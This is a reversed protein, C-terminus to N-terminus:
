RSAPAALPIHRLETYIAGTPRLDSKYLIIEQVDFPNFETLPIAAVLQSLDQQSRRDRIRGITLHPKFPRKERPFGISELEDELRAQLRLLPVIEGQLGLWIVRPKRLNPFGGLTTARLTFVAEGSTAQNIAAAIDDVQEPQINGLFKLTLHISHPKVWRVRAGHARLAQQVAAIAERTQEPIRIAIFTRIM